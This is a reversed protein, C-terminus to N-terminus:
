KKLGEATKLETGKVPDKLSTVGNKPIGSGKMQVSDVLETKLEVGNSRKAEALVKSLETKISGRAQDDKIPEEIKKNTEDFATVLRTKTTVVEGARKEDAKGDDKLAISSVPALERHFTKKGDTAHTGGASEALNEAATVTVEVVKSSVESVSMKASLVKKDKGELEDASDCSAESKPLQSKQASPRLKSGTPGVVLQKDAQEGLEERSASRSSGSLKFLQPENKEHTDSNKANWRRTPM